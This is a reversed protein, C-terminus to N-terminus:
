RCAARPTWACIADACMADQVSVPLTEFALGRAQGPPAPAVATRVPASAVLDALVTSLRSSVVQGSVPREHLTVLVIALVAAATLSVCSPRVDRVRM